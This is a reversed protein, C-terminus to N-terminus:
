EPSRLLPVRERDTLQKFEKYQKDIKETLEYGLWKDKKRLDLDMKTCLEFWLTRAGWAANHFMDAIGKSDANIAETMYENIRKATIQTIEEFNM